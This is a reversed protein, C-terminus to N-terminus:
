HKAGIRVRQTSGGKKTIPQFAGNAGKTGLSSRVSLM